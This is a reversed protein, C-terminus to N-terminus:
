TKCVAAFANYNQQDGGHTEADHGCQDFEGARSKVDGLYQEDPLDHHAQNQRGFNCCVKWLGQLGAAGSQLEDPNADRQDGHQTAERGDDVQGEGVGGGDAEGFAEEDGYEGDDDQVFGDTRPAPAGGDDAKDADGDHNLWARTSEAQVAQVGYDAGGCRAQDHHDNAHEGTGLM